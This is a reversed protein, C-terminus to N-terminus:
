GVLLPVIGGQEFLMGILPISKFIGGIGSGVAASSQATSNATTATTNLTTAVTNATNAGQLLTTVSSTAKAADGFLGLSSGATRVFSTLQTIVGVAGLAARATPSLQRGFISAASAAIGLGQTLLGLNSTM